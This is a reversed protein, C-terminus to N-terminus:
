ALLSDREYRARVCISWSHSQQIRAGLRFGRGDHEPEPGTSNHRGNRHSDGGQHGNEHMAVSNRSHCKQTWSYGPLGGHVTAKFIWRRPSASGILISHFGVRSHPRRLAGEWILAVRCKPRACDTTWRLSSKASGSGPPGVTG